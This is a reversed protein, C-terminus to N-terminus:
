KISGNGARSSCPNGAPSAGSLRDELLRELVDFAINWGAAGM